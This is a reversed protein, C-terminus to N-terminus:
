LIETICKCVCIYIQRSVCVHDRYLIEAEKYDRYSESIERQDAQCTETKFVWKHNKSLSRPWILIWSYLSSPKSFTQFDSIVEQWEYSSSSTGNGNLNHDASVVGVKLVGTNQFLTASAFYVSSYKSFFINGLVNQVM